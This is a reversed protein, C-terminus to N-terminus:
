ISQHQEVSELGTLLNQMIRRHREAAATCCMRSTATAVAADGGRWKPM